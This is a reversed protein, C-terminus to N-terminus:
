ASSPMRSESVHSSNLRTSKRDVPKKAMETLVVAIYTAAPMEKSLYPKTVSDARRSSAVSVGGMSAVGISAVGDDDEM